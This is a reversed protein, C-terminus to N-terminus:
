KPLGKSSVTKMAEVFRDLEGITTYLNPTIRLGRFDDLAFTTTYIKHKDMLYGALAAPEIGTIEVNGIACSQADDFSTNIRVGAFNRVQNMWYRSLYRLRAEKRKAGIRQHFLIAEGIALKPAASHTGIEEFKRIDSAEKEEAAMLPWIKEIKERKVFLLGTGKPAYMWKHLSTGFYDCGLDAQQFALHGFSHAGDVIVEIGKSRALECVAKVPTIQGTSNIVHSILILKTKATIGRKFADVIEDLSKAPVPVKVLKLVLGERRERQRLTTLMRPYDQTTTLIEDGPQFNMGMLLIELSESANRTIAIEERDCGFLQALGTRITETQPELIHWMTYATADEQEWIYRILAETVIRPSPSVGGNNLNIIGRTVSFSKQIASWFDEQEASQEPSLHDITKASTDIEKLLAGISSYAISALGLGKGASSLFDRRTPNIRPITIGNKM